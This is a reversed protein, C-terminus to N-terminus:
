YKIWRQAAKDYGVMKLDIKLMKLMIDMTFEEDEVAEDGQGEKQKKKRMEVEGLLEVKRRELQDDDAEVDEAEASGYWSELEEQEWKASNSQMQERWAKMGGMRSVREQAGAFVEEAADQSVAKWKLILAELEADKTSSEIKLAQQATDLQSRLASLRTQLTRQEKQLKSIVPDALIGKKSPTIQSPISKRKRVQWNPSPSTPTSSPLRTSTSVPTSLLSHEQTDSEGVAQNEAESNVSSTMNKSAEEKETGQQAPRRLPSKFPKSLSSAAQDVRRRKSNLNVLAM